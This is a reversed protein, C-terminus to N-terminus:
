KTINNKISSIIATTSIDQDLAKKSFVVLEIGHEDCFIKKLEVNRDDDTVALIAPRIRL